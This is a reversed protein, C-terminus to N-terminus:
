YLRNFVLQFDSPAGFLSLILSKLPEDAAFTCCVHFSSVKELVFFLVDFLAIKGTGFNRIVGAADSKYLRTPKQTKPPTRKRSTEVGFFRSM